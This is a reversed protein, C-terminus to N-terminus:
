FKAIEFLGGYFYGAGTNPDVVLAMQTGTAPDGSCQLIFYTALQEPQVLIQAIPQIVLLNSNQLKENTYMEFRREVKPPKDVIMTKGDEAFYPAFRPTWSIPPRAPLPPVKSVFMLQGGAEGIVPGSEMWDLRLGELATMDAAMAPRAASDALVICKVKGIVKFSRTKRCEDQYAFLKEPDTKNVTAISGVDVVEM